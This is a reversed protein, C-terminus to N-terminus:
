RPRPMGGRAAMAMRRRAPNARGREQDPSFLGVAITPFHADRRSGIRSVVKGGSGAVPHPVLRDRDKVM